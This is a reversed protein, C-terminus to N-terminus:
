ARTRSLLPKASFGTHGPRSLLCPTAKPPRGPEPAQLRSDPCGFYPCPHMGGRSLRPHTQHCSLRLANQFIKPFLVGCDAAANQWFASQPPLTHLLKGATNSSHPNQPPDAYQAKEDGPRHPVPTKRPSAHRAYPFM